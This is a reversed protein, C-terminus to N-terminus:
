LVIPWGLHRELMRTRHALLEPAVADGVEEAIVGFARRPAPAMAPCDTESLPLVPTLFAATHIDLANPAEGGFYPADGLRRQLASLLVRIRTRAAAICGPTHGYKAALYRAVPPPFGRAPDALSADIMLLRASWGLGDEGALEHLLGVQEVRATIDTPLLAGPPGLRAALAVIESWGTRPPEDDHLVVPVNHSRAFAHHAPDDRSFRVALVPVEIRKFLAKAAQSWPSPVAGSVVLRVGRAAQATAVDVYSFTSM